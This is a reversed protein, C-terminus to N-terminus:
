AAKRTTSRGCSRPAPRASATASPSRTSATVRARGASRSAASTRWRPECSPTSSPSRSPPRAAPSRSRPSGSSPWSRTRSTAGHELRRVQAPLRFQTGPVDLYTYYHAVSFTRTRPPSSSVGAAAYRASTRPTSSRASPSTRLPSAARRGRQAPRSARSQHRGPRGTRRLGRHVRGPVAGELRLQWSGRAMEIPVRREDLAIFFGGFSDDLPNINDLLRFVDTEGWALNQRGLRLFLPGKEFDLYALFLRNRVRANRLLRDTREKIYRPDLNPTTNIKAVGPIDLKVTPFDGRFRATTAYPNSYESPGWNYLGEGEFRYELTYKLTSPDLLRFPALLGWSEKVMRTLDHDYSLQVFFRNQRLHGAGSRPWNLPNNESGITNTGVRAAVYSRLGLRVEGRHDINIAHASLAGLTLGAVVGALFLSASRGRAPATTQM